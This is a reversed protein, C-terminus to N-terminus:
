AEGFRAYFPLVARATEDVDAEVCLSWIAPNLSKLQADVQFAVCACSRM